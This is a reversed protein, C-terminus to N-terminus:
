CRDITITIFDLVLRLLQSVHWNDVDASTSKWVFPLPVFYNPLSVEGLSPKLRLTAMPLLGGNQWFGSSLEKERDLVLRADGSTVM